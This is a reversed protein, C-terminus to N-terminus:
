DFDFWISLTYIGYNGSRGGNYPTAIYELDLTADELNTTYKKSTGVTGYDGQIYLTISSPSFPLDQQKPYYDLVKMVINHGVEIVTRSVPTIRFPTAGILYTSDAWCSNAPVSCEKEYIVGDISVKVWVKNEFLITERELNDILYAEDSGQGSWSDFVEEGGCSAKVWGNGDTNDVVHYLKKSANFPYVEVDQMSTITTDFRHKLTIKYDKTGKNLENDLEWQSDTKSHKQIEDIIFGIIMNKSTEEKMYSEYFDHADISPFGHHRTDDLNSPLATVIFNIFDNHFLVYPAAGDDVPFGAVHNAPTAVGFMHFYDKMWSDLKEYAENTYYNGQSHAIVIVGHGLKISEKYATVQKTLDPIHTDYAEQIDHTELYTRFFISFKEWGWENSMVQEASEFVDDMFGQSANYSIKANAIKKYEEPNSIFMDEVIRKWKKEHKAQTVDMDIMIGNAYYLDVKCEDIKKVNAFLSISVLLSLSIIKLLTRM